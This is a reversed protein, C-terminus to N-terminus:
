TRQRHFPLPGSPHRFTVEADAIVYVATAFAVAASALDSAAVNDILDNATHHFDFYRTADQRLDVFPVGLQRLPGIDVGGRSPVPDLAIGLPELATALEKALASEVSPVRLAWPAGDGQDAELAAVHAAAETSHSQAYALGGGTGLEENAFLVIRVTRRPAVPLAAILRGVELALACGAGDDLAGTGLDWSDLHAGMLVIEDPRERGVVEGIVNASEGVPLPKCGLTLHTVVEKGGLLARALMDGDPTSLAAAPIEPAGAEYFLAGTHAARLSDTGISRVLCARAGKKAARSPGRMRVVSGGNYGTGDRMRPMVHHLYVVRGEVKERPARELEDLSTFMVVPADIGASETGISGGLASLVVAQPRPLRLVCAERGREWLTAPAPERRVHVLGGRTMQEEAWAQAAIDGATCPFRPGVEDCLSRLLTFTQADAAAKQLRPLQDM